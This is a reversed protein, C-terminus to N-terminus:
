RASRRFERTAMVAAEKVMAVVTSDGSGGADANGTMVVETLQAIGVVGFAIVTLSPSITRKM